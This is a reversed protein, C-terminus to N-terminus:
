VTGVRGTSYHDQGKGESQCLFCKEDCINKPFPYSKQLKSKVSTGAREVVKVSCKSKEIIKKYKKKLASDKTPQVFLVSRYEKERKGGKQRACIM